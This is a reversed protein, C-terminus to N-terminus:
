LKIPECLNEERAAVRGCNKCLFKADKILKRYEDVDIGIDEILHCLHRGHGLHPVAKAPVPYAYPRGWLTTEVVGTGLRDREGL